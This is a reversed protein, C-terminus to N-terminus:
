IHPPQTQQILRQSRAKGTPDTGSTDQHFNIWVDIKEQILKYSRSSASWCVCGPCIPLRDCLKVCVAVRTGLWLGYVRRMASMKVQWLLLLVPPIWLVSSPRMGNLHPRVLARTNHANERQRSQSVSHFPAMTLTISWVQAEDAGEGLAWGCRLM